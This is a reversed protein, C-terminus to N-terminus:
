QVLWEEVLKILIEKKNVEPEDLVKDHLHKLIKGVEPGQTVGLNLIDHGSIELHDFPTKEKRNREKEVKGLFKEWEKKFEDPKLGYVGLLKDAKKLDLWKPFLEGMRHMTRRICRPGGEISRMHEKILLKIAKIDVVSFKLRYLIEEALEAGVDEHELFHRGNADETICRPKAIDHLLAAMRTIKDRPCREVVNLIHTFVDWLHWKNQKVGVTEVLEPLIIKLIGLELMQEFAAKPFESTIIKILEDHIRETSIIELRHALSRAAQMTEEEVSRGYAKGFRVMRLIRHPDEIFRARADGVARVRGQKIDFMGHFPDVIKAGELEIAVANITFDRAPLDECISDTYVDEQKPNRFTTIEIPEGEILVTITGRRLGTPIWRLGEAEFAEIMEEPTFKTALDLDKIKSGLILDRVAGGVLHLEAEKGLVEQLTILKTNNKVFQRVNEM